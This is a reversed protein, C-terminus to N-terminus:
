KKRKLHIPPKILGGHKYRIDPNRFNDRKVIPIIKDGKKVIPDALKMQTNRIVGFEIGNSPKLKDIVSDM